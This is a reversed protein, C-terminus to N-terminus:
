MLRNENRIKKDKKNGIFNGAILAASFIGALAIFDSTPFLKYGVFGFAGGIAAGIFSFLYTFHYPPFFKHEKRMHVSLKGMLRDYERRSAGPVSVAEGIHKSVQQIFNKNSSCTPCKASHSGTREFMGSSNM